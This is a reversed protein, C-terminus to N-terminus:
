KGGGGKSAEAREACLRKWEEKKRHIFDQILTKHSMNPMTMDAMRSGLKPSTIEKGKARCTAFWALIAHEEYVIGDAALVPNVILATTIPCFFEDPAGELIFAEEDQISSSSSGDGGGEAEGKEAAEAEVGVQEKGEEEGLDLGEM